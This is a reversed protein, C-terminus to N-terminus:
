FTVQADLISLSVVTGTDRRIDMIRPDPGNNEETHDVETYRDATCCCDSVDNIRM